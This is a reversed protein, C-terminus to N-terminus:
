PLYKTVVGCSSNRKHVTLQPRRRGPAAQTWQIIRQNEHESFRDRNRRRQLEGGSSSFSLSSFRPFYEFFSFIKKGPPSSFCLLFLLFINLSSKELFQWPYQSTKTETETKTELSKGIKPPNRNQIPLIYDQFFTKTKTKSFKTDSFIIPKAKPSKTESFLIPKQKPRSFFDRNRFFLRSIPKSWFKPVTMWHKSTSLLYFPQDFDQSLVIM